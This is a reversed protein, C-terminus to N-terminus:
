LVCWEMRGSVLTLGKKVLLFSEEARERSRIPERPSMFFRRLRLRAEERDLSRQTAKKIMGGHTSHTTRSYYTNGLRRDTLWQRCKGDVLHRIPALTGNSDQQVAFNAVKKIGAVKDYRQQQRRQVGTADNISDRSIPRARSGEARFFSAFLWSRKGRRGKFDQARVEVPRSLHYINFYEAVRCLGHIKIVPRCLFDDIQWLKGDGSGLIRYCTSRSYGFCSVLAAVADSLALRGSGWSNLARLEYWVALEKDLKVKLAAASLEPILKVFLAPAAMGTLYSTRARHLPNTGETLCGRPREACRPLRPSSPLKGGREGQPLAAALLYVAALTLDAGLKVVKLIPAISTMNTASLVM